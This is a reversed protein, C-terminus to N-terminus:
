DLGRLVQRDPDEDLKTTTTWVTLSVGTGGDRGTRYPAGPEIARHEPLPTPLPITPM